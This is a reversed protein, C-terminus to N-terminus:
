RVHRGRRRSSWRRAYLVLAVPSLVGAGWWPAGVLPPVTVLCIALVALATPRDLAVEPESTRWWGRGARSKRRAHLTLGVSGLLTSVVLPPM